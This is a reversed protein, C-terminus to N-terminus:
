NLDSESHRDSVWKGYAANVKIKWSAICPVGYSHLAEIKKRAEEGKKPLTKLLLVFEIEEAHKGKWLYLSQGPPINACAALKDAILQKAITKAEKESGCPVYLLLIDM